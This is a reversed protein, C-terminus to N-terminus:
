HSGGLGGVHSRRPNNMHRQRGVTVNVGQTAEQDSAIEMGLAAGERSLAKVDHDVEARGEVKVRDGLGVSLTAGVGWIAEHHPM